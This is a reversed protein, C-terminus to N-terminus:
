QEHHISRVITFITFLCVKGIQGLGGGRDVWRLPHQM